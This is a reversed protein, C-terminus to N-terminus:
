KETILNIKFQYMNQTTFIVCMLQANHSTEVCIYMM